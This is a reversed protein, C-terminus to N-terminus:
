DAGIESFDTELPDADLTVPKSTARRPPTHHRTADDDNDVARDLTLQAELDSSLTEETHSLEPTTLAPEPVREPPARRPPPAPAPDPAPWAMVQEAPPEAGPEPGGHLNDFMSDWADLESSLEEQGLFPKSPGKPKDASM